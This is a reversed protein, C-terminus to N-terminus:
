LFNRETLQKELMEDTSFISDLINRPRNNILKLLFQKSFINDPILDNAIAKGGNTESIVVFIEDPNIIISKAKKQDRYYKTGTMSTIM